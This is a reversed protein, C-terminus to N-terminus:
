FKKFMLLPHINHNLRNLVRVETNPIKELVEKLEDNNKQQGLRIIAAAVNPPM